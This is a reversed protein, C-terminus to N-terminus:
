SSQLHSPFSANFLQQRHAQRVWSRGSRCGFAKQFPADASMLLVVTALDRLASRYLIYHMARVKVAEMSNSLLPISCNPAIIRQASAALRDDLLYCLIASCDVTLDLHHRQQQDQHRVQCVQIYVGTKEPTRSWQSSITKRAVPALSMEFVSICFMVVQKSREGGLTRM